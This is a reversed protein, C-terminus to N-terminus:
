PCGGGSGGTLGYNNAANIMTTIAVAASVIRPSSMKDFLEDLADVAKTDDLTMMREVLTTFSEWENTTDAMAQALALQKAQANAQQVDIKDQVKLAEDAITKQVQYAKISEDLQLLQLQHNEELSTRQQQASRRQLGYIDDEYKSREKFRVQEKTWDEEQWGQSQQLREKQTEFDEEQWDKQQEFRERQLDFDEEQWERQEVLREMQNELSESQLTYREDELENLKTAREEQTDLQEEGVNQMTVARERQRLLQKRQRGTAFRISEEYDEMQWGFQMQSTGRQIDLDEAAWGRQMLTQQRGLAFQQQQIAMDQQQWSYQTAARGETLAMSQEQWQNQVSTRSEARGVDAWQQAFGIRGRAVSTAMDEATWGRQQLEFARNREMIGTQLGMSALSSAYSREIGMRQLNFQGVFSVDAGYPNVFLGGEQEAYGLNRSALNLQRQQQYVGGMESASTFGGRQGGYQFGYQQWQQDRQQQQLNRMRETYLNQAQWMSEGGWEQMFSEAGFQSKIAATINANTLGGGANYPPEYQSTTLATLQGGITPMGATSLFRLNRPLIRRVNEGFNQTTGMPQYTWPELLRQPNILANELEAPLGSSIRGEAIQTARVQDGGLIRSINTMGQESVNGYQQTVDLIQQPTAGAASLFSWRTAGGMFSTLQDGQLGLSNIYQTVGLTDGASYGGLRQTLDTYQDMGVGTDLMRKAMSSYRRALESAPMEEGGTYFQIQGLTSAIDEVKFATFGPSYDYLDQAAQKIYAARPGVDLDQLPTQQYGAWAEAAAQRSLAAKKGFEWWEAGVERGGSFEIPLGFALRAGMNKALDGIAEGIGGLGRRNSFMEAQTSEINALQQRIELGSETSQDLLSNGYNHMGYAGIVAGATLGIPLAAGALGAGFASIGAGSLAGTATLGTGVASLSTGLSLAGFGLAAGYGIAPSAIAQLNRLENPMTLGLGYARYAAEGADAKANAVGAQRSAMAYSIGSGWPQYGGANVAIDSIVRDRQAAAPIYEQFVQNAGSYELSRTIMARERSFPSMMKRAFELGAGGLTQNPVLEDILTRYQSSGMLRTLGEAGGEEFAARTITGLKAKASTEVTAQALEREAQPTKSMAAAVRRRGDILETTVQALQKELDDSKPAQGTVESIRARQSTTTPAGFSIDRAIEVDSVQAGLAWGAAEIESKSKFRDSGTSGARAFLQAAAANQGQQRLAAKSVGGSGTIGLVKGLDKFAATSEAAEQLQKPSINLGEAGLIDGLLGAALTIEGPEKASADSIRKRFGAIETESLGAETAMSEAISVDGLLNSQAFQFGSVKNQLRSTTSILKGLERAQTLEEPTTPMEGGLIRQLLAAHSQLKDPDVDIGTGGAAVSARRIGGMTPRKTWSDGFRPDNYRGREMFTEYERSMGSLLQRAQFPSVNTPGAGPTKNEDDPPEPPPPPTVPPKKGGGGGGGGAPPAAPQEAGSLVRRLTEPDNAQATRAEWDAAREPGGIIELSRKIAGYELAPSGRVIDMGAASQEAHGVEHAITMQFAETLSGINLAPVKLEGIQGVANPDRSKFRKEVLAANMSVIGTEKDFQGTVGGGIKGLKIWPQQKAWGLVEKPTKAAMLGSLDHPLSKGGEPQPTTSPTSPERLQQAIDPDQWKGENRLVAEHESYMFRPMMGGPTEQYKVPLPRHGRSSQAYDVILNATERDGQKSFYDYAKRFASQAGTGTAYNSGARGALVLKDFEEAENEVTPKGYLVERVREYRDPEELERIRGVGGPRPSGTRQPPVQIVSRAEPEDYIDKPRDPPNMDPPKGAAAGTFFEGYENALLSEVGQAAREKEEESSMFNTGLARQAPTAKQDYPDKMIGPIGRRGYGTAGIAEGQQTGRVDFRGTINETFATDTSKGQALRRAVDEDMGASTIIGSGTPGLEREMRKALETAADKSGVYVTAGTGEKVDGGALYKFMYPTKETAWRSFAEPDTVNTHLKWGGKERYAREAETGRSMFFGAAKDMRYPSPRNAGAQVQGVRTPITNVPADASDQREREGPAPQMVDVLADASDQRAREPEGPAPQIADVLADVSDQRARERESAKTPIANGMMNLYDILTQTQEATFMGRRIMPKVVDVFEDLSEVQPHSRGWLEHFRSRLRGEEALDQQWPQLKSRETRGERIDRHFADSYIMRLFPAEEIISRNIGEGEAGRDRAMTQLQSIIGASGTRQEFLKALTGFGPDEISSFLAATAAGSLNYDPLKRLQNINSVALNIPSGTVRQYENTAPNWYKGRQASYSMLKLLQQAPAPIDKVDQAVSYLPAGFKDRVEEALQQAYAQNEGSVRRGPKGIQIRAPLDVLGVNYATGISGKGSEFAQTERAVKEIPVKTMSQAIFERVEDTTRPIEGVHKLVSELEGGLATKSLERLRSQIKGLETYSEYLAPHIRMMDTDWDGQTAEALTRDALINMRYAEALTYNTGHRVNFQPLNLFRGRINTESSSKIPDRVFIADSLMPTEGLLMAEALAKPNKYKDMVERGIYSENGWVQQLLHAMRQPPLFVEGPALAMSSQIAGGEMPGYFRDFSRRASNASTVDELQTYIREISKQASRQLDESQPNEKLAALNNFLGVVGEPMGFMLDRVGTDAGFLGLLTKTDPLVLEGQGGEFYDALNVRIGAGQTVESIQRLIHGSTGFTEIGEKLEFPVEGHSLEDAKAVINLWSGVIEESGITKYTSSPDVMAQWAGAVNATMQRRHESYEKIAAARDPDQYEIMRLMDGPINNEHTPYAKSLNIALDGFFTQMTMEATGFRSGDIVQEDGVLKAVGRNILANLQPDLETSGEPGIYVRQNFTGTKIQGQDILYDWVKKTTGPEWRRFGAGLVKERTQVDWANAAAYAFQAPENMGTLIGPNVRQNDYKVQRSEGLNLEVGLGFKMGMWGKLSAFSEPYDVEATGRLVRNTVTKGSSLTKVVTDIGMGGVPIRVRQANSIHASVGAAVDFFGGKAGIWEGEAVTPFWDESMEKPLTISFPRLGTPNGTINPDYQAQGAPFSGEGIVVMAQAINGTPAEGVQPAIPLQRVPLNSFYVPDKKIAQKMRKAVKAADGTGSAYNGEADLEGGPIMPADQQRYLMSGIQVPEENYTKRFQVLSEPGTYQTAVGATVARRAPGTMHMFDWPSVVTEREGTRKSTTLAPTGYRREAEERLKLFAIDQPSGGQLPTPNFVSVQQGGRQTVYADQGFLQSALVRTQYIDLGLSNARAAFQRAEPQEWIWSEGHQRITEPNDLESLIPKTYGQATPPNEFTGAIAFPEELEGPNIDWM